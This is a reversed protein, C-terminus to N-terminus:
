GTNLQDPPVPGGAATGPASFRGSLTANVRSGLYPGSVIVGRVSAEVTFVWRSASAELVTTACPECTPGCQLPPTGPTNACFVPRQTGVGLTGEIAGSGTPTTSSNGLLDWRGEWAGRTRCPPGLRIRFNLRAKMVGILGVAEDCPFVAGTNGCAEPNSRLVLNLEAQNGILTRSATGPTPGPCEQVFWHGNILIAECLNKSLNEIRFRLAPSPPGAPGLEQDDPSDTGADPPQAPLAPPDAVPPQATPVAPRNMGYAAALAVIALAAVVTNLPRSPTFM